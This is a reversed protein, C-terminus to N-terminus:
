VVASVVLSPGLLISSLVNTLDLKEAVILAGISFTSIGDQHKASGSDSYM